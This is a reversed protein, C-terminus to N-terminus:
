HCSATTKESQRTATTLKDDGLDKRWYQRRSRASEWGQRCARKSKPAGCLLLDHSLGPKADGNTRQLLAHRTPNSMVPASDPPIVVIAPCAKPRRREQLCFSVGVLNGAVPV